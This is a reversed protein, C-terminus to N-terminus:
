RPPRAKATRPSIFSSPAALSSACASITSIGPTSIKATPSAKARASSARPRLCRTWAVGSSAAWAASASSRAPSTTTTFPEREVVISRASGIRRWSPVCPHDVVQEVREVRDIPQAEEVHEAVHGEARERRRHRREEEREPEIGPEDAAQLLLLDTLHHAGRAGLRVEGLGARRRHAPREHEEREEERGREPRRG